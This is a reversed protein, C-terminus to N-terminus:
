HGPDNQYTYSHSETHDTTCTSSSGTHETDGVAPTYVVKWSRPGKSSAAGDAYATTEEYTVTGTDGGGPNSTRVEESNAGGALTETEKYLVNGTCTGTDYLEFVVTGGAGLTDGAVTSTITATDNPYWSQKTKVDTPIQQITVDEGAEDCDDNHSTGLTNLPTDPPDGSYSAKWHYDGPADPTFAATDYDGDGSVTKTQPNTAGTGTATTACATADNGPGVLTFTITGDAVPGNTANISPYTTDPGNDGPQNATGTLTAIDYVADGFPVTGVQVLGNALNKGFFCGNTCSDGLATINGDGNLDVKGNTFDPNSQGSGCSVDNGLIDADGIIGFHCENGDIIEDGNSDVKGFITSWAFDSDGVDPNNPAAANFVTPLPGDGTQFEGGLVNITLSPVGILTCDDSGGPGTNIEGDGDAGDNDATWADCDLAGSIIETDGYFDTSSDAATIAGDGNLDALGGVITPSLGSAPEVATTTLTPTVPLVEFCEGESSDTVDDVGLTESDYFGRWCYRGVSTLNASDSVVPMTTDQDVATGTGIELGGTDCTGTAIPGCLFFHLTGSFEEAGTVDLDASDKVNVGADGTGITVEPLLDEDDSDTIDGGNGDKPTTKLSAECAEFSGLLFDKLQAGIEPSSRTEVLFNTFCGTLELATLDVGGEMFGGAYLTDAPTGSIKSQYDWPSKITSNNVTNCGDRSGGPDCDGFAVALSCCTTPTAM